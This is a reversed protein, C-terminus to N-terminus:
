FGGFEADLNEGMRDGSLHYNEHYKLLRMLMKHNNQVASLYLGFDVKKKPSTKKIYKAIEDLGEIGALLHGCIACDDHSM